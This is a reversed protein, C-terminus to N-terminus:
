RLMDQTLPRRRLVISEKRLALALPKPSTKPEATATRSASARKSVGVLGQM